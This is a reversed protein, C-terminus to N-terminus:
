RVREPGAAMQLGRRGTRGGSSAKVIGASPELHVSLEAKGLGKPQHVDTVPLSIVLGGATQHGPAM